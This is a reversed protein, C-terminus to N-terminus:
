QVPAQHPKQFRRHLRSALRHTPKIMDSFRDRFFLIEASTYAYKPTEKPPLPADRKELMHKNSAYRPPLLALGITPGNPTSYAGVIGHAIENRRSAYRQALKTTEEFEAEAAAHPTELFYAEGARKVMEVRGSASLITGYARQAPLNSLSPSLFSSFLDAISIEFGEWATLARGISAFLREASWDGKEPIPPVDYENKGTAPIYVRESFQPQFMSGPIVSITQTMDDDLVNQISIDAHPLTRLFPIHMEHAPDDLVQPGLIFLDDGIQRPDLAHGPSTEGRVRAAQESNLLIVSNTPGSM